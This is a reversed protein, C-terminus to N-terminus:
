GRVNVARYLNMLPLVFTDKGSRKVGYLIVLEVFKLGATARCAVKVLYLAVDINNCTQVLYKFWRCHESALLADVATLVEEQSAESEGVLTKGGNAEFRQLAAWLTTILSKHVPNLDEIESRTKGSTRMMGMRLSNRCWTKTPFSYVWGDLTTFTDEANADMRPQASSVNLDMCIEQARMRQWSRCGSPSRHIFHALEIDGDHRRDEVAHRMRGFFTELTAAVMKTMCDHSSVSNRKTKQIRGDMFTFINMGDCAVDAEVLAALLEDLYGTNANVAAAGLLFQATIYELKRLFEMPDPLQCALNVSYPDIQVCKEKCWSSLQDNLSEISPTREEVKFTVGIQIRRLNNLNATQGLMDVGDHATEILTFGYNAPWGDLTRREDTTRGFQMETVQHMYSKIARRELINSYRRLVCGVFDKGNEGAYNLILRCADPYKRVILAVFVEAGRRVSRGLEEIRHRHLPDSVTRGSKLLFRDLRIDAMSALYFKKVLDRTPAPSVLEGFLRLTDQLADDRTVAYREFDAPLSGDCPLGDELWEKLLIESCM